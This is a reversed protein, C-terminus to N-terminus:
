EVIETRGRVAGVNFFGQPSENEDDCVINTPVNAPPEAFLAADGLTLQIRTREWFTFAETSISHIEVRITDGETYPPVEDNDPGEDDALRNIAERIPTIFILGDVEAGATFGADYAINIEQPKNLYVGNKYTKIWYANGVGVIDRGYFQAYLGDPEGLEDDLFEWTISDVPVTPNMTTASSYTKGEHEINLTYTNGITGFTTNNEYKWIYNGNNGEDQFNFVNGQDDTVTVTAGTVEPAFTNSFYPASNRLKIVQDEPLDNIWADVVLEVKGEDLDVDIKDECSAIVLALLFFFYIKKMKFSNQAYLWM